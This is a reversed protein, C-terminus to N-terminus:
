AAGLLRRADQRVHELHQDDLSTAAIEIKALLAAHDPAPIAMLRDRAPFYHSEGYDAADTELQDVKLREAIATHRNQYAMFEDALAEVAVADPLQGKLFANSELTRVVRERSMGIGLHHEEFFSGVRPCDIDWAECAASSLAWLRDFEARCADHVAAATYFDAQGIPRELTATEM